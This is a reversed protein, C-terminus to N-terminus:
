KKKSDYSLCNKKKKLTLFFQFMTNHLLQHLPWCFPPFNTVCIHMKKTPM